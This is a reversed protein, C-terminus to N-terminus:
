ARGSLEHIHRLVLEAQEKIPLPKPTSIVITTDDRSTSKVDLKRREFCEIASWTIDSRTLVNMVKEAVIPWEKVIRHEPDVMFSRTPLSLCGESERDDFPYCISSVPEIVPPM